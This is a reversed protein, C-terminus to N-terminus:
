RRATGPDGDYAAGRLREIELEAAEHVLDLSVRHRGDLEALAARTAEIEARLARRLEAERSRAREVSAATRQRAAAIQAELCDREEIIPDHEAPDVRAASSGDEPPSDLDARHVAPHYPLPTAPVQVVSSSVTGRRRNWVGARATGTLRVTTLRDM